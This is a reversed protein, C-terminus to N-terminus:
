LRRGGSRGRSRVRPHHPHHEARRGRRHHPPEGAFCVQLPHRPGSRRDRAGIATVPFPGGRGDLKALAEKAPQGPFMGPADTAQDGPGSKVFNFDAITSQVDYQEAALPLEAAWYSRWQPWPWGNTGFWHQWVPLHQMAGESTPALMPFHFQLTAPEYGAAEKLGSCSHLLLAAVCRDRDPPRASGPDSSGATTNFPITSVRMGCPLRCHRLAPHAYGRVGASFAGTQARDGSRDSRRVPRKSSLPRRM